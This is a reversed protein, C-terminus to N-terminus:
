VNQQQTKTNESSHVCLDYIHRKERRCGTSSLIIHTYILTVNIKYSKTFIGTCSSNVTYVSYGDSHEQWHLLSGYNYCKWIITYFLTYFAYLVISVNAVYWIDWFVPGMPSFSYFQHVSQICTTLNKALKQHSHAGSVM